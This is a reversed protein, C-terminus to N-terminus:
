ASTRTTPIASPTAYPTEGAAPPHLEPHPFRPQPAFVGSAGLGPPRIEPDMMMDDMDTEVTLRLVKRRQATAAPRSALPTANASAWSSGCSNDFIPTAAGVSWNCTTM